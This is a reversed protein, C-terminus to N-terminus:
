QTKLVSLIGRHILLPDYLGFESLLHGDGGTILTLLERKYVSKWSEQCHRILATAYGFVGSLMASETDKAPLITAKEPSLLPLNPVRLHICRLATSLGPLILGGQFVGDICLDITIATGSNVIIANKSYYNIAGFACLLRDIGTKSSNQKIPVEKVLKADPFADLIFKNLSM